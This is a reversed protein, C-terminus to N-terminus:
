VDMLDENDEDDNSQEKVNSGTGVEIAGPIPLLGRLVDKIYDPPSSYKKLTEYLKLEESKNRNFELSIRLRGM